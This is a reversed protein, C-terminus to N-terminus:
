AVRCCSDRDRLSSDPIDRCSGVRLLPNIAHLCEVLVHVQRLRHDRGQLRERQELALGCQHGAGVGADAAGDRQREAPGAGVHHDVVHRLGFIGLGDDCSIRAAPARAIATWASTPSSACTCAINAAATRSNPVMSMRTLLAPMSRFAGNWSIVAACHSVTIFTLRRPANRHARSATRSNRRRPTRGSTETAAPLIM